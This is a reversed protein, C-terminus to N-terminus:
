VQKQNRHLSLPTAVPLVFFLWDFLEIGHYLFDMMCIHILKGQIVYLSFLVGPKLMTLKMEPMNNRGNCFMLEKNIFFRIGSM